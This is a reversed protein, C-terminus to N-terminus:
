TGETYPVEKEKGEHRPQTRCSDVGREEAAKLPAYDLNWAVQDLGCWWKDGREGSADSEVM